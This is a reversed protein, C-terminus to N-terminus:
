LVYKNLLRLENIMERLVLDSEGKKQNTNKHPAFLQKVAVSSGFYKAKFVQGSTGTGLVDTADFRLHQRDIITHSVAAIGCASHFRKLLQLDKSGIEVAGGGGLMTQVKFSHIGEKKAETIPSSFMSIRNSKKAEKIRGFTCQSLHM